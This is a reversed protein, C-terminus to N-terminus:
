FDISDTIEASLGDLSMYAYVFSYGETGNEDTRTCLLCINVGSVIQTSLIAVSRYKGESLMDLLMDIMGYKSMDVSEYDFQQWGGMLGNINTEIGTDIDNTFEANGSLDEYIEVFAYTEIPNLSPSIVPKRRCIFLHNYGAVVQVAVYAVPTFNVGTYGDFAKDFLARLEPTIAPSSVSGWGGSIAQKQVPIPFGSIRMSKKQLEWVMMGGWITNEMLSAVAEIPVYVTGDIICSKGFALGNAAASVDNDRDVSIISYNDKGVKFTLKSSLAGVEYKVTVKSGSKKYTGGLQKIVAKLPIYVLETKENDIKAKVTFAKKSLKKVGINITKNASAKSLASNTVKVSGKARALTYAPTFEDMADTGPIDSVTSVDGSDTGPIDSVTSVDGSDTGPIDSVTSVDGRDTGPIDEAASVATVPSFVISTVISVICMLTAFIRSTKSLSLTKM